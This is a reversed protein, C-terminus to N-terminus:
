SVTGNSSFTGNSIISDVGTLVAFNRVNMAQIILDNGGLDTATTINCADTITWDGTDYTCSDSPPAPVVPKRGMQVWDFQMQSNGNNYPIYGTVTSHAGNMALDDNCLTGDILVDAINAGYNMEFTVNYTVGASCACSDVWGGNNVECKGADGIRFVFPSTAGDRLYFDNRNAVSSRWSFSFISYNKADGIFIAYIDTGSSATLNLMNNSIRIDGAGVEYVTLNYGVTNNDGGNFSWILYTAGGEIPAIISKALLVM